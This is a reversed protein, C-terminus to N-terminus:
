KSGRKVNPKKHEPMIKVRGNPIEVVTVDGQTYVDVIRDKVNKQLEKVTIQYRNEKKM